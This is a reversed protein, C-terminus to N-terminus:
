IKTAEGFDSIQCVELSQMVANHEKGPIDDNEEHTDYYTYYM